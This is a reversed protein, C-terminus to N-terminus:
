VCPGMVFRCLLSRWLGAKIVTIGDGEGDDKNIDRSFSLWDDHLKLLLQASVTFTDVAPVAPPLVLGAAGVTLATSPGSGPLPLASGVRTSAPSVPESPVVATTPADTKADEAKEVVLSYRIWFPCM